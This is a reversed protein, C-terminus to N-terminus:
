SLQGSKVLIIIVVIGLLFVIGWIKAFFVRIRGSTALVAVLCIPNAIVLGMFIDLLISGM